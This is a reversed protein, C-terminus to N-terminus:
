HRDNARAIARGLTFLLLDAAARVEAPTDDDLTQKLAIALDAARDLPDELTAPGSVVYREGDERMETIDILIGRAHVPRGVDDRFTRGRSLLWHVAGDEAIVRFEALMLGGTQVAAQVQEKLWEHDASHVTAIADLGVIEQEALSADGTLLRSAGADYVMTRRVIDWDWTGVVCSADLAARLRGLPESFGDIANISMRSKSGM